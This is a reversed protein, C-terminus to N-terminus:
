KIFPKGIFNDNDYYYGNLGNGTLTENYDMEIENTNVNANHFQEKHKLQAYM